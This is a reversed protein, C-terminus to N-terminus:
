KSMDATARKLVARFVKLVEAASYVRERAEDDGDPMVSEQATGYIQQVIDKIVDVSPASSSGSSM